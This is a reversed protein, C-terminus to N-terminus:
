KGETTEKRIKMPTLQLMSWIRRYIIESLHERVEFDICKASFLKKITARYISLLITVGIWHLILDETVKIGGGHRCM